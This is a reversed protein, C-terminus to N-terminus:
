SGIVGSNAIGIGKDHGEATHAPEGDKGVDLQGLRHACIWADACGCVAYGDVLAVIHEITVLDLIRPTHRERQM